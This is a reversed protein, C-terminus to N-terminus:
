QREAKRLARCVRVDEHTKVRHDAVSLWQMNAVAEFEARNKHHNM